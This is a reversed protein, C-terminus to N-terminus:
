KGELDRIREELVNNKRLLEVITNQQSKITESYVAEHSKLPYARKIDKFTELLTAASPQTDSWCDCVLGHLPRGEILQLNKQKTTGPDFRDARAHICWMITGFRRIELDRANVATNERPRIVDRREPKIEEQDRTVMDVAESNAYTGSSSESVSATDLSNEGSFSLTISSSGASSLTSLESHQESVTNIVAALGFDCLKVLPGETASICKLLVNGCHLDGHVISAVNHLYNLARAVDNAIKVEKHPFNDLSVAEPFSLYRRLSVDMLTMVLAPYYQDKIQVNATTIYQVINEHKCRRITKCEEMFDARAKESFTTRSTTTSGFVKIAVPTGHYDIKYVTGYKGSGLTDGDLEVYSLTLPM